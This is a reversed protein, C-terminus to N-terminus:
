DPLKMPKSKKALLVKLDKKLMTYAEENIADILKSIDKYALKINFYNNISKVVKTKVTSSKSFNSKFSLTFNKVFDISSKFDELKKNSVFSSKSNISMASHYYEKIVFDFAADMVHTKAFESVLQEKRQLVSSCAAQFIKSIKNKKAIIKRRDSTTKSSVFNGHAFKIDEYPRTARTLSNYIKNYPMIYNDIQQQYLYKVEIDGDVRAKIKSIFDNAVEQNFEPYMRDLSLVPKSTQKNILFKVVCRRVMRPGHNNYSKGNTLYIIGIYPDCMSGILKSKYAGNWSQCSDIGRMSMTTIDWLGNIGDSSFVVDYSGSAINNSSFRIFSDYDELRPMSSALGLSKKLENTREMLQTYVKFLSQGSKFQGVDVPLKLSIKNSKPDAQIVSTSRSVITNYVENIIIGLDKIKSLDENSLIGIGYYTDYNKYFIFQSLGAAMSDVLDSADEMASNNAINSKESFNSLGLSPFVKSVKKIRKFNKNKLIFSPLSKAKILSSLHIM